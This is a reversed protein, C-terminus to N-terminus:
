RMENDFKDSILQINNGIDIIWRDFHKIEDFLIAFM